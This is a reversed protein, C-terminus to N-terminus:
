PTVLSLLFQYDSSGSFIADIYAKIVGDALIHHAFCHRLNRSSWSLNQKIQVSGMGLTAYRYMAIVALTVDTRAPSLFSVPRNAENIPGIQLAQFDDPQMLSKINEFYAKLDLIVDPKAPPYLDSLESESYNAYESLVSFHAEIIRKRIALDRIVTQHIIQIRKKYFRMCKSLYAYDPIGAAELAKMFAERNYCYKAHVSTAFMDPNTYFDAECDLAAIFAKLHRDFILNGISIYAIAIDRPDIHPALVLDDFDIFPEIHLPQLSIPLPPIEDQAEQKPSEAFEEESSFENNLDDTVNLNFDDLEEYSESLQNEDRDPSPAIPLNKNEVPPESSQNGDSDSASVTASSSNEKKDNKMPGNRKAARKKTMKRSKKKEQIKANDSSIEQNPVTKLLTNYKIGLKSYNYNKKFFEIFCAPVDGIWEGAHIGLIISYVDGMQSIEIGGSNLSEKILYALYDTSERYYEMLNEIPKPYNTTGYSEIIGHLCDLAAHIQLFNDCFLSSNGNPFKSAYGLLNLTKSRKVLDFDLKIRTDQLQLIGEIEIMEFTTILLRILYEITVFQGLKKPQSKLITSAACIIVWSKWIQLHRTQIVAVDFSRWIMDKIEDLMRELTTIRSENEPYAKLFCGPYLITLHPTLQLTKGWSDELLKHSLAGSTQRVAKSSIRNLSQLLQRRASNLVEFKSLDSIKFYESNHNELLSRQADSIKERTTLGEVEPTISCLMFLLVNREYLWEPQEAHDIEMGYVYHVVVVDICREVESFVLRLPHDNSALQFMKLCFKRVLFGLIEYQKYNEKFVEMDLGSELVNCAEHIIPLLTRLLQSQWRVVSSMTGSNTPLKSLINAKMQTGRYLEDYSLKNPFPFESEPKMGKENYILQSGYGFSSIVDKLGDIILNCGLGKVEVYKRMYHIQVAVMFWLEKARLNQQAPPTIVSSYSDFQHDLLTDEFAKLVSLNLAENNQINSLSCRSSLTLFFFLVLFDLSRM